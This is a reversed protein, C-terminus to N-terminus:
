VYAEPNFTSEQDDDDLRRIEIGMRQANDATALEPFAQQMM